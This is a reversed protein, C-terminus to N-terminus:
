GLLAKLQRGVTDISFGQEARRLANAALRARLHPDRMRNVAEALQGADEQQIIIGGSEEGQELIEPLGQADTAVVPLGCAMAELPAVPMGEVRSATVYIDAASLWTRM